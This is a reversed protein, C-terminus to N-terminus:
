KKNCFRQNGSKGVVIGASVNKGTGAGSNGNGDLDPDTLNYLVGIGDAGDLTASWMAYLNFEKTIWFRDRETFSGTDEDYAYADSNYGPGSTGEPKPSGSEINDTMHTTKDYETTVTSENLVFSEDFMKTLNQDRYWGGFIYGDRKGTPVSIKGGYSVRFNMNQDDSGWDLTSDTGANPHLFVRYQILRWKAYVTLGGEPMKLHVEEGEDNTSVFAVAQTCSEDLFWGEFKYGMPASPEYSAYESIDDGYLIDDEEKWQGHGDEDVPNGNGDFYAGDMFNIAYKNRTYYFDISQDHTSDDLARGNSGFEPDSAYQTFGAIHTFDGDKRVFNYRASITNILTFDIGNYTKDVPDSPLAEVYYYMTKLPRNATNLHFTISEAPMATLSVIVESNNGNGVSTNGQPQWREGHNYTVGNTGVIPFESLIDQQYLATITKITTWENQGGSRTYVTGTYENSYTYNWWGTRNRWWRGNNYYLHVQTYGGNGDPIYYDGDNTGTYPTYVYVGQAQFRLTYENRDYYIHIVTSGEAAVKIDQIVDVGDVKITETFGIEKLHFGTYQKNVGNVRAYDAGNPQTITGLNRVTSGINGTLPITEEFDYGDGDVNQKWIIVTYAATQNPIWSAYITTKDTLKNGFEYKGTTVSPNNGHADAHEKTDYWGGFTYGNRVMELSPATTIDESKVFQPANYTGGKGNEDFVLWHGEPANVSFVVDGKIIVNSNVEYLNGDSYGVINDSGSKVNWGLFGHVEDTPTYTKEIKYSYEDLVSDARFEITDTGLSAGTDDQFDIKYQKFLMAYYVLPDGGAEADNDPPLINDVETRVQDILLAATTTTYNPDTTWGKFIIGSDPEFEPEPIVTEMDDGEKVFM